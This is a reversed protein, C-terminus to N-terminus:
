LEFRFALQKKDGAKLELVESVTGAKLHYAEVTYTGPPLNPPLQFTGDERTVAFFPHEVVGIYGFEWSHVDCRIQVLIEAASFLHERSEGRRPLSINLGKNSSGAKPTIHATHITDDANRFSMKQNVQVGSVYPEFFCNSPGMMAINTSIPFRKGGLGEKIYVFVNALGGEKGLVYHRTTPPKKQLRACRDDSAMDILIEPPPTGMLTVKGTIKIGSHLLVVAGAPAPDSGITHSLVPTKTEREKDLVTPEEVSQTEPSVPRLRPGLQYHASGRVIQNSAAAGAHTASTNTNVAASDISEQAPKRFNLLLYIAGLCVLVVPVVVILRPKDDATPDPNSM